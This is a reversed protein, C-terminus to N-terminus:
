RETEGTGLTFPVTVKMRTVVSEGEYKGASFRQMSVVRIAEEDFGYGKEELVIPDIVRGRKDVLFEVTVEAESGEEAADAPYKILRLLMRRGGILQPKVQVETEDYWTREDIPPLDAAIRATSDASTEPAEAATLDAAPPAQTSAATALEQAALHSALSDFPIGLSDALAIRQLSDARAADLAALSDALAKRDALIENLVDNRRKALKAAESDGFLGQIREYLTALFLPEAETPVAQLSDTAVAMSDAANLTVSGLTALSDSAAADPTATGDDPLVDVADDVLPGDDFGDNRTVEVETPDDDIEDEVTRQPPVVDVSDDLEREEAQRGPPVADIDDIIVDDLEAEGSTGNAAPPVLADIGEDVEGTRDDGDEGGDPPRPAAAEPAEAEGSAPVREATPEPEPEPVVPMAIGSALLLSDPLDVPLEAFLDLSDRTAWETYVSAAALMARPATETTAYHASVALMDNLAQRYQARQWLTYASAYAGEALTTSDPAVEPSPIGLQDRVREAFDSTPYQALVRQYIQDAALTDGLSRQVEALAYYSRQAVEQEPTEEIVMRYWVSASDPRNVLFFLVNGMAYRALARETEMTAQSLSDRPVDSVDLPPLMDTATLTNALTLAELDGSEEAEALIL